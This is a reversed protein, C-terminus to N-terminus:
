AADSARLSESTPKFSKNPGCRAVWCFVIGVLLGIVAGVLLTKLFSPPSLSLQWYGCWVIAGLLAAGVCVPAWTLLNRSRLWLLYPLGLLLMAIYSIPLGFAFFFLAAIPVDRLGAIGSVSVSEWAAWATIALPVAVPAVLVAKWIPQRRDTM